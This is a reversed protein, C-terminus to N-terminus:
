DRESATLFIALTGPGSHSGIVMGLDMIDPKVGTDKELREAVLRAEDICDAHAVFM